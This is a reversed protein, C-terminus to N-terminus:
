IRLTSMRSCCCPSSASSDTRKMATESTRSNSSRQSRRRRRCLQYRQCRECPRCPRRRCCRYRRCRRPIKPSRHRSSQWVPRQSFFRSWSSRHARPSSILVTRGRARRRRISSPLSAHACRRGMHWASQWAHLVLCAARTQPSTWCFSLTTPLRRAQACSRTTAPASKCAASVRPRSGYSHTIGICCARSDRSSVHQSRRTKSYTRARARAGRTTRVRALRERCDAIAIDAAARGVHLSERHTGIRGRAPRSPRLGSSCRDARADSVLADVHRASTSALAGLWDNRAARADSRDFRRHAVVRDRHVRETRGVPRHHTQAAPLVVVDHSPLFLVALPMLLCLALASTWLAHHFAASQRRLAVSLLGAAVVVLSTKLAISAVTMLEIM